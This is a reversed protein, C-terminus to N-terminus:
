SSILLDRFRDIARGDQYPDLLCPDAPAVPTRTGRDGSKLALVWAKLDEYGHTM